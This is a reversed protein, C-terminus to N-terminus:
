HEQVRGNNARVVSNIAYLVEEETRAHSIKDNINVKDKQIEAVQKAHECVVKTNNQQRELSEEYEKNQKMESRIIFGCRIVLAILALIVLVAYVMM